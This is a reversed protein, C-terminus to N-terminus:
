AVNWAYFHAEDSGRRDEDNREELNQHGNAFDYQQQQQPMAQNQRAMSTGYVSGTELRPTWPLTLPLYEPM